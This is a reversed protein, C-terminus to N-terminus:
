KEKELEESAHGIQVFSIKLSELNLRKIASFKYQIKLLQLFIEGYLTSPFMDYRKMSSGSVQMMWIIGDGSPAFHDPPCQSKEKPM